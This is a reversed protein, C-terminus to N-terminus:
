IFITKGINQEGTLLKIRRNLTGLEWLMRNSQRVFSTRCFLYQEPPTEDRRCRSSESLMPFSGYAFAPDHGFPSGYSQRLRNLTGGALKIVQNKTETSYTDGSLVKACLCETEKLAELLPSFVFEEDSRVDAQELLRYMGDFYETTQFPLLDAAALEFSMDLLLRTDLELVHLDVKDYTDKSTHWWPVGAGPATSTKFEPLREYRPNIHYPIDVGWFSQDAGRGIGGLMVFDADVARAAAQRLWGEGEPGVSRIAPTDACLSGSLDSNLHAICHEKLEFWHNDCYWTSGMYRGNSHGPWWCLRVSRKLHSRNAYLLRAIELLASNGTCNDVAGQYWTDYHSSLLVFDESGGPIEGVPLLVRCVQNSVRVSLSVTLSKGSEEWLRILHKGDAMTVAAAPISLALLCSDLDPTGWAAGVTDEHIDEDDSTWIQIWGLAGAQQLLQAYKEDYGYGLVIKGKMSELAAQRKAPTETHTLTDPDYILPAIVPLPCDGSFSRPRSVIQAPKGEGVLLTSELPNSLYADFEEMHCPIGMDMLEHLMYEAAM